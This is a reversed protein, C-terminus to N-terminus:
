VKLESLHTIIAKIETMPVSSHNNITYILTKNSERTRENSYIFIRDWDDSSNNQCLWGYYFNIVVNIKLTHKSVFKLV